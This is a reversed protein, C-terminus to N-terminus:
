SNKGRFQDFCLLALRLNELANVALFERGYDGCQKSDFELFSVANAIDFAHRRAAREEVSVESKLLVDFHAMLNDTNSWSM